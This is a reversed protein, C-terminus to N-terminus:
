PIEVMIHVACEETAEVDVMINSETILMMSLLLNMKLKWCSQSLVLVLM